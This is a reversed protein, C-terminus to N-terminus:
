FINRAHQQMCLWNINQKSSNDKKIGFEKLALKKSIKVFNYSDELDDLPM